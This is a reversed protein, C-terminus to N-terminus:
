KIEEIFTSIFSAAQEPAEYHVLHGVNKIEVLKANPYLRAVERQVEITTIDDLHAAVLLVPTTISSAM